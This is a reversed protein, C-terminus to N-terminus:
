RVVDPPQMSQAVVRASAEVAGQMPHEALLIYKGSGKCKMVQESNVLKKLAGDFTAHSLGSKKELENYGAGDVPFTALAKLITVHSHPTKSIGGSTSWKGEKLTVTVDAFSESNEPTALRKKDFILGFSLVNEGADIKKMLIHTDMAWEKTKSGYSKSEDHGTHHFWVQGIGLKTLNQRWSQLLAWSEETKMDGILLSQINDFFIFDPKEEAIIKDLWKTGVVKGKEQLNLPTAGYAIEEEMSIPILTAPACGCRKAEEQLRTQLLRMPMEGDVYLAKAARKGDWHLFGTGSAVAFGLAVGLM